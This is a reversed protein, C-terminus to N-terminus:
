CSSLASSSVHDFLRLKKNLVSAAEPPPAAPRYGIIDEWDTTTLMCCAVRGSSPYGHSSSIIAPTIQLAGLIDLNLHCCRIVSQM